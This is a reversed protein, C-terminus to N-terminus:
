TTRRSSADSDTIELYRYIAESRNMAGLKRLIKKVHSKVTFVSIVLEDAIETNSKGAALLQFVERERRTLEELGPARCDSPLPVPSWAAAGAGSPKGFAVEANSLGEAERSEEQLRELILRKQESLRESVLAREFLTGFSGAFADLLDREAVSPKREDARCAHILGIVGTSVAIPALVYGGAGFLPVGPVATSNGTSLQPNPLVLVAARKQVAEEEPSGPAIATSALATVDPASGKEFQTEVITWANDHVESLLVRGLGTMAAAESCVSRSLGAVTEAGRLRRVAGAFDAAGVVGSSSPAAHLRLRVERIEVLLRGFSVKKDAPISSLGRLGAETAEDLMALMLGPSAKRTETPAEPGFGFEKRLRGLLSTATKLGEAEARSRASNQAPSQGNNM